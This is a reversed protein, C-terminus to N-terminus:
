GGQRGIVGAVQEGVQHVWPLNRQASLRGHLAAQERESAASSPAAHAPLPSVREMRGMSFPMRPHVTLAFSDRAIAPPSSPQTAGVLRFKDDFGTREGRKSFASIRNQEGKRSVPGGFGSM